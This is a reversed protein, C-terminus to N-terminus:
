KCQFWSPHHVFMDLWRRTDKAGLYHAGCGSKPAWFIAFGAKFAKFAKFTGTKGVEECAVKKHGTQNCRFTNPLKTAIILSSPIVQLMNEGEYCGELTNVSYTARMRPAGM